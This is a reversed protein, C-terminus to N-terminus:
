KLCDNISHGLYLGSLAAESGCGFINWASLHNQTAKCGANTEGILKISEGKVFINLRSIVTRTPLNRSWQYSRQTSSIISPNTQHKSGSSAGLIDLPDTVAM